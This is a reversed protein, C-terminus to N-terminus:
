DFAYEGSIGKPRLRMIVILALGFLILRLSGAIADPVQVLRLAEPLFVLLLAGYISGAVRGAGGVIVACLILISEELTFSTPDIYGNYVALLAGAPAALMAGIVFSKRKFSKVNKGVSLAALEDDRIAQLTRGFPRTTLKWIILTIMGAIAAALPLFNPASSLRFGFLHPSPVGSIGYSGQTVADWNNFVAYIIMQFGLTVLVFFDGRLRLSPVSILYALIGAFLVSVPLALFFSFGFRMMLITCFYGGLGSFAAHCVTLLGTYGVLLNLTLTLILYLCLMVGIHALYNM